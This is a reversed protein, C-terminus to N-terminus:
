EGNLEGVNSVKHLRFVGEVYLVQPIPDTMKHLGVIEEKYIGGMDKDGWGAISLNLNTPDMDTFELKITRTVDYAEQVTDAYDEDLNNHDPHYKHKFPNLPDDFGIIYTAFVTNGAAFIGQMELPEPFSFVASSVRRGVNRGDRLGPGTYDAILSDDTILVFKGEVGEDGPDWMQTVEKLLRLQGVTDVHVIIRFQLESATPIPTDPNQPDAPQNVRNIMANGVWLGTRETQITTVPVLVRSGANNDVEMLSQYLGSTSLSARRVAIRIDRASGEDFNLSALGNIESWGANEDPLPIWRSLPVAGNASPGNPSSALINLSINSAGNSNNTIRLKEEVLIEGFDLGKGQEVQVDLPGVYDSEGSCRIWYAEDRNMRTTQPNSVQVWTGDENLRYIEPNTNGHAASPAFFDSFYPEQGSSLHFGVLNVSNPKWNIKPLCPRGIVTWEVDEDGGLNILYAKGGQVTFLNTLFKEAQSPPFYVLWQPQEPMLTDPNQIYEVSSTRPNWRWVSLVPLGAFVDDCQNPDPTVELFIANWGPKLTFSQEAWQAKSEQVFFLLSFVTGIAVCMFARFYSRM